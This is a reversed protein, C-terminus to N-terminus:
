TNAPVPTKRDMQDLKQRAGSLTIQLGEVEGPWGEREAEAIRATLNDRIELGLRLGGHTAVACVGSWPTQTWGRHAFLNLNAVSRRLAYRPLDTSVVVRHATAGVHSSSCHRLAWGRLDSGRDKVSYKPDGM